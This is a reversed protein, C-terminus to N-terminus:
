CFSGHLEVLVDIYDLFHAYFDDYSFTSYWCDGHFQFSYYILENIDFGM